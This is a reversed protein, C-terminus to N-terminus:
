QIKLVGKEVIMKGDVTVTCGNLSAVANWGMDNSGGAWNNGGFGLSVTGAPVWSTLKSGPPVKVNPNIGLDLVAFDNKGEPVAAYFAKWREYDPGANASHATLKGAQVTFTAGVLVGTEFPMTDAVIKGEATGPVPALYVEGAPLWVQTAPGGKAIDEASIVGDSVFVPRGEIRLKLETGNPHTVLVERGAALVSRVAAGTAQLKNYDVNVGAWFLETLQDKTLGFQKAIAETPYLGNGLNVSRVGREQRANLVDNIRKGIAAFREPPVDSFLTPFEQGSIDIAVTQAEVLKRMLALPMADYKKPVEDFFRRATRERGVVQIAEAGRKWVALAVEEILEIDRVDGQVVVRDGEKVNASQVVIREATAKYDPKEAARPGATTFMGALAAACFAIPTFTSKRNM